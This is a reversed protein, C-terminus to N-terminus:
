VFFLAYESGTSSHKWLGNGIWYLTHSNVMDVGGFKRSVRVEVLRQGCAAIPGNFAAQGNIASCAGIWRGKHQPTLNEPTVRNSEM